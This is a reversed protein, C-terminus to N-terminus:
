PSQQTSYGVFGNVLDVSSNTAKVAWPGLDARYKIPSGGASVTGQAFPTTTVFRNMDPFSSNFTAKLEEPSDCINGARDYVLISYTKQVGETLRDEFFFPTGAIDVSISTDGSIVVKAADAPGTTEVRITKYNKGSDLGGSVQYIGSVLTGGVVTGSSTASPKNDDIVVKLAVVQASSLNNFAEGGQNAPRLEIAYPNGTEPTGTPFTKVWSFNLNDDCTATEAVKVGDVYGVVKAVGFVCSGKITITPTNFYIRSSGDIRGLTSYESVTKSNLSSFSLSVSASDDLTPANGLSLKGGAGTGGTCGAFLTIASISIVSSLFQDARRM